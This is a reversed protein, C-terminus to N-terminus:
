EQCSEVEEIKKRKFYEPYKEAQKNTGDMHEVFINELYGVVYGNHRAQECVSSDFGRAKPKTGDIELRRWLQFPIVM